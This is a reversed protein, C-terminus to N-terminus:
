VPKYTAPPLYYFYNSCFLYHFTLLHLNHKILSDSFYGMSFFPMEYLSHLIKIVFISSPLFNM